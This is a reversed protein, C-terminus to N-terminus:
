AGIRFERHRARRESWSEEVDTVRASSPGRHIAALFERLAAEDGEAEIEVGDDARNWVKGNVGLDRARTMAYHRFGVGQVRGRVILHLFRM